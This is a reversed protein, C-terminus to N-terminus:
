SEQTVVEEEAASDETKTLNNQGFFLNERTIPPMGREVRKENLSKMMAKEWNSKNYGIYGGVGM